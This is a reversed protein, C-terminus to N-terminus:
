RTGDRSLINQAVGNQGINKLAEALIRLSPHGKSLVNDERRLWAAVMDDPMTKMRRLKPFSLGLAGGLSVLEKDPLEQLYKSVTYHDKM